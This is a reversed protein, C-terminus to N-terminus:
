CQLRTTLYIECNIRFLYNKKFEIENIKNDFKINNDFKKEVFKAYKLYLVFYFVKFIKKFKMKHKLCYHDFNIRQIFNLKYKNKSKRM